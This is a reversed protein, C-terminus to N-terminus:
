QQAASFLSQVPVALLYMYDANAQHVFGPALLLTLPQAHFSPSLDSRKGLMFALRTLQMVVHCLTYIRPSVCM